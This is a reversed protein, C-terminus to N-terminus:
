YDTIGLERLINAQMAPETLAEVYPIYDFIEDQRGVNEAVTIAAPAAFHQALLPLSPTRLSNSSLANNLPRTFSENGPKFLFELPDSHMNSVTMVPDWALHTNENKLHAVPFEPEAYEIYDHKLIQM